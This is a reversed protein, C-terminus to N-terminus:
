RARVEDPDPIGGGLVVSELYYLFLSGKEYPVRSFSEDPDVGVLDDGPDLKTFKGDGNRQMMPVTDALTM